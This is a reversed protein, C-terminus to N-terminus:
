ECEGDSAISTGAGRAMCANGYTEGDCGCVPAYEETCAEPIVTCVGIVEASCEAEVPIECFEGTPCVNDLSGGCAQGSPQTGECEGESAVSVGAVHAACANGYTRDDCGCVPNYDATCAEPLAECTGTQDGAGCMAEIPFNCFQGDECAAGLLGGCSTGTSTDCEGQSAVSIGAAHASCENGYTEGDCGCVPNYEKTCAEPMTACTGTQDAFGCGADPAYNCFEDAACGEGVLGGCSAGSGSECEGKGVVSVGAMQAECENGYTKDDCGCVPSYVLDCAEPKSICVGMQDAAGCQADPPYNCFEDEACALGALGGCGDGTAECEGEHAVPVDAAGAECANGYTKGDEGCVPDYIAPCVTPGEECEGEHKVSTGALNAMCANSHTVGDCGCVPALEKTCADPTTTCVGGKDTEGCQAELEFLCFEGTECDEAGRTGCARPEGPESCEGKKAVTVGAAAASCANGYTQGDCGCVPNYEETCAEPKAECVGTADPACALEGTNCYEGPACALGQIGGCVTGEDDTCAEFKAVSVGASNAECENGYTVDDCGCVPDYVADCADPLAECKGTADATGCLAEESFNCFEDSKCELGTLGGCARTNSGLNGVECGKAGLLGPAAIMVGLSILWHLNQGFLRRGTVMDQSWENNKNDMITNEM